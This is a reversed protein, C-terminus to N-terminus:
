HCCAYENPGKLQIEGYKLKSHRPIDYITEILLEWINQKIYISILSNRTLVKLEDNVM